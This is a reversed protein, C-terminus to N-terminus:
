IQSLLLKSIKELESLTSVERQMMSELRVIETRYKSGHVSLMKTIEDVPSSRVLLAKIDQLQMDLQGQNNEAEIILGELREREKDVLYAVGQELKHIQYSMRKSLATWTKGKNPIKIIIDENSKRDTVDQFRLLDVVGNSRKTLNYAISTYPSNIVVPVDSDAYAMEHVFAVADYLMTNDLRSFQRSIIEAHNRFIGDYGAEVLVEENRSLTVWRNGHHRDLYKRKATLADNGGEEIFRKLDGDLSFYGTSDYTRTIDIFERLQNEDMVKGAARITRYMSDWHKARGSTDLGPDIKKQAYLKVLILPIWEPHTNLMSSNIFMMNGIYAGFPETSGKIYNLFSQPAFAYEIRHEVGNYNFATIQRQAHNWYDVLEYIKGMKDQQLELNGHLGQSLTLSFM